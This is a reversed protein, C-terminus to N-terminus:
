FENKSTPWYEEFKMYIFGDLTAMWSVIAFKVPFGMFTLRIAMIPWAMVGMIVMKAM